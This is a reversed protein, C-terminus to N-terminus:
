TSIPQPLNFGDVNLYVYKKELVSTNFSAIDKSTDVKLQLIGLLDDPIYKYYEELFSVYDGYVVQLPICLKGDHVLGHCTSSLPVLGVKNQYHLKMVEEGILIPNLDWDEAIFKDVVVHTIDFLTFPEHHIEIKVRRSEGSVNSFFTCKTMDINERLYKVYEKYELSHRVCMEVTKILKIKDKDNLVSYSKEPPTPREIDMVAYLDCIEYGSLDPIRM